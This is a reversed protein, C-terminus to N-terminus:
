IHEFLNLNVKCAVRFKNKEEIAFKLRKSLSSANNQKIM